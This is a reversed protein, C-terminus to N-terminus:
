NQDDVKEERSWSLTQNRWAILVAGCDCRVDDTDRQPLKTNGLWWSTGCQKCKVQKVKHVRKWTM